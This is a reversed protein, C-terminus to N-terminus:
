EHMKPTRTIPGMVCDDLDIGMGGPYAIGRQYGIKQDRLNQIARQVDQVLMQPISFIDQEFHDLVRELVTLPDNSSIAQSNKRRYSMGAAWGPHQNLTHWRPYPSDNYRYEWHEWPREYRQADTAYQLMETSHLCSNM